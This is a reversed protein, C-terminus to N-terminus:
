KEPPEQISRIGMGPVDSLVSMLCDPNECRHYRTRTRMWPKTCTIKLKQGCMPCAAGDRYHYPVGEKAKAIAIVLAHM